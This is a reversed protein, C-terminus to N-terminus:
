GTRTWDDRTERRSTKLHTRYVLGWVVANALNVGNRLSKQRRM